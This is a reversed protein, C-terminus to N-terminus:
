MVASLDFIQGSAPVCDSSANHVLCGGESALPEDGDERHYESAFDARNGYILYGGPPNSGGVKPEPASASSMMPLFLLKRITTTCITAVSVVSFPQSRHIDSASVSGSNARSTLAHGFSDATTLRIIRAASSAPSANSDIKFERGFCHSM